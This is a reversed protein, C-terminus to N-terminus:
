RSAKEWKSYGEFEERSWGAGVGLIVRGESLIDVNAVIKALQAPNRFPIPTVCTGLKIKTTIASLYSLL